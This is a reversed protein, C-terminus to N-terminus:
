KEIYFNCFSSTNKNRKGERYFIRLGRYSYPNNNYIKLTGMGKEESCFSLGLM